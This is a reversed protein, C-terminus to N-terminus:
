PLENIVEDGDRSGLALYLDVDIAENLYHVSGDGYVFNAGGPHMSGFPTDNFGMTKPAGTPM